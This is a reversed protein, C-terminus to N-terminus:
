HYIVNSDELVSTDVFYKNLNGPEYWVPVTEGILSRNPICFTNGSKFIHTTGESDTYGCTIIYPNRHNISVRYNPVTSIIIADLRVGNELLQKKRRNTTKVAIVPSFGIIIFLIGMGGFLTPLFWMVFGDTVDEPNAPDYYVTLKDGKKWGSNYSNLIQTYEKGDAEFRIETSDAAFDTIVADTKVYLSKVGAFIVTMVVAAAVFLAGFLTFLVTFLKFNNKM